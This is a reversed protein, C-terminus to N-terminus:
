KFREALEDASVRYFFALWYVIGFYKLMDNTTMFEHIIPVPNIIKRSMGLLIFAIVFLIWDYQLIKRWFIILYIGLVLIYLGYFFFEPIHLLSPLLRDHFLFLDDVALVFSLIGSIFLFFYERFHMKNKKLVLSTFLCIAATSMWLLASWNSLLGIYPPFVVVEAPDKALKWIPNGTLNAVYVTVVAGGLSLAIGILITPLIRIIQNKINSFFNYRLQM